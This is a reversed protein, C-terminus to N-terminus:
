YIVKYYGETIVIYIAKYFDYYEFSLFFFCSFNKNLLLNKRDTFIGHLVSSADANVDRLMADAEQGETTKLWKGSDCRGGGKRHCVSVPRPIYQSVIVATFM